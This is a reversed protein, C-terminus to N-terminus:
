TRVSHKFISVQIFKEPTQIRREQQIFELEELKSDSPNNMYEERKKIFYSETMTNEEAVALLRCM